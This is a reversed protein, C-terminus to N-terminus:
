YIAMLIILVNQGYPHAHMNWVATNEAKTIEAFITAAGGDYHQAICNSLGEKM